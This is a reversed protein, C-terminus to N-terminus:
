ERAVPLWQQTCWLMAADRSAEPTYAPNTYVFTTIEEREAAIRASIGPSASVRRTLALATALPMGRDRDLTRQAALVGYSHCLIAVVQRHTQQPDTQPQASQPPRPRAPIIQPPPEASTETALLLGVGLM